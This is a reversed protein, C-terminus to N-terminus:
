KMEVGYSGARVVVAGYRVLVTLTEAVDVTATSFNTGKYFMVDSNALSRLSM